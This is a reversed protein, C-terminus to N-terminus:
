RKLFRSVAITSSHKADGCPSTTGRVLPLRLTVSPYIAPALTARVRGRPAGCWNRWQVGVAIQGRTRLTRTPVGPPTASGRMRVTLTPLLQRGVSLSIRRLAGTL